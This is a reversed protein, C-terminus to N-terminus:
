KVVPSPYQLFILVVKTMKLVHWSFLSFWNASVASNSLEEEEQAGQAMSLRPQPRGM